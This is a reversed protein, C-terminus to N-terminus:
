PQEMASHILILREGSWKYFYVGEGKENRSGVVVLLASNSKFQLPEDERLKEQQLNSGFAISFNSVFISGTKANVIAFLICSAGCSLRILSYHGAFNPGASVGETIAARFEELDKTIIPAAPKGSFPEAPFDKYRPIRTAQISFALCAALCYHIKKQNLM